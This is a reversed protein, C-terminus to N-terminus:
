LVCLQAIHFAYVAHLWAIVSYDLHSPAESPWGRSLAPSVEFRSRTAWCRKWESEWFKCCYFDCWVPVVLVLSEVWCSNSKNCCTRAANQETVTSGQSPDLVEIVIGRQYRCDATLEGWVWLKEEGPQVLRDGVERAQTRWSGFAKMTRWQVKSTLMERAAELGSMSWYPGIGSPIQLAPSFHFTDFVWSSDKSIRM